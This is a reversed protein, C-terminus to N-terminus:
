QPERHSIIATIIEKLMLLENKSCQGLMRMIENLLEQNDKESKFLLADISMNLEMAIDFLLPVSPQRHESEIHKLHSPTIDLIEALKEQTLSKKLRANKIANGLTGETPKM